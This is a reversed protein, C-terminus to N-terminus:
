DRFIALTQVAPEVSEEYEIEGADGYVRRSWRLWGWIALMLSFALLFSGTLRVASVIVGGLLM